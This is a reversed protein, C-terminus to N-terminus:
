AIKPLAAAVGALRWETGKPLLREPAGSPKLVEPSPLVKEHSFLLM